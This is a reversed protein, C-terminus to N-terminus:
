NAGQIFKQIARIPLMLTMDSVPCSIFNFRQFFRKADDKSSHVLLGATGVHQAVALTKALADLLLSSGINHGHLSKDVALRGLITVPIPEPMNRRIAPPTSLRDVAGAALAYYGVVTKSEPPCVVFTRSAGTLQNKLARRSLWENLVQEGCDFKSLDHHENLSETIQGM